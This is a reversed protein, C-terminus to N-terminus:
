HAPAISSRTFASRLTMYVPTSVAGTDNLYSSRILVAHGAVLSDQQQVIVADVALMDGIPQVGIVLDDFFYDLLMQAGLAPPIRPRLHDPAHHHEGDNLTKGLNGWFEM